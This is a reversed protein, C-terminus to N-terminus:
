YTGRPWKGARKRAPRLPQGLVCNPDVIPKNLGFPSWVRKLVVFLPSRGGGGGGSCVARGGGWRMRM